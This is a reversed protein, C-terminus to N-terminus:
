LIMFIQNSLFTLVDSLFLYKVPKSLNLSKQQAYINVTINNTLTIPRVYQVCGM